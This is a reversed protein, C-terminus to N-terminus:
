VPRRGKRWGVAVLMTGAALLASAVLLGGQLSRGTFALSAAPPGDTPEPNPEPNPEGDPAAAPDASAAAVCAVDDLVEASATTTARNALGGPGGPVCDLAGSSDDIRVTVDVAYAHVTGSPLVVDAAVVTATTGNWGPALAVGAPGSVTAGIVDVGDGFLLEDELTYTTAIVSDSRVRITYGVEVVGDSGVPAPGSSVVKDVDVGADVIGFDLDTRTTEMGLLADGSDGDPSTTTGDLDFTHAVGAPLTAPDLVTRYSGSHLGDFLYGGDGDTTTRAVEAGASHLVVDVDPVGPEDPDQVGDADLDWWVRDGVSSAVVRITSNPTAPIPTAPIAATYGSSINNVYRDDHRNGTPAALIRLGGLEGARLNPDHIRIATVDVMAAPCGASGFDVEACWSTTNATPDGTADVQDSPEATYDIVVDGDTGLVTASVLGFDGGYDSGRADGDYPLVDVWTTAGASTFLRNTWSITWSLRDPEIEVLPFDAVKSIRLAAPSTVTLSWQDTRSSEPQTTGPTSVVATNAVTSANTALTSVTTSYTIPQIPENPTVAATHTFTVVAGTEGPDGSCALGDAGLDSPSTVTM